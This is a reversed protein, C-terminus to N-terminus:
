LLGSRQFPSDCHALIFDGILDVLSILNDSPDILFRLFNGSPDIPFRVLNDGADKLFDISSPAIPAFFYTLLTAQAARSWGRPQAM